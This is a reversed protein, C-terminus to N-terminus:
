RVCGYYKKDSSNFFLEYSYGCGATGCSWGEALFSLRRKPLRVNYVKGGGLAGGTRCAPDEQLFKASSFGEFTHSYVDSNIMVKTAGSRAGMMDITWTAPQRTKQLVTHTPQGNVTIIVQGTRSYFKWENGTLDFLKPREDAFKLGDHKWRVATHRGSARDWNIMTAIDGEDPLFSDLLDAFSIRDDGAFVFDGNISSEYWPSQAGSTEKVVSSRITKLITEVNAGPTRVAQKFYKSYPSNRGDGDLAVAGPATSYAILTGAVSSSGAQKQPPGPRQAVVSRALGSQIAPIASFPSNRCADIVFLGIATQSASVSDIVDSLLIADRDLDDARKVRSMADVPLLYNRGNHQVGHGAFFVLAASNQPLFSAFEAIAARLKNLGLDTELRVKFGITRLADAVDLADNKPNKLPSGQYAANGIVLAHKELTNTTSLEQAAVPCPGTVVICGLTALLAFLRTFM